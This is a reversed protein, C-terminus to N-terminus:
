SQGWTSTEGEFASNMKNELERVRARLVIIELKATHLKDGLHGCERLAAKRSRRLDRILEKVPRSLTPFREPNM